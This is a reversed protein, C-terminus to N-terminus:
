TQSLNNRESFPARYLWVPKGLVTELRAQTGCHAITEQPLWELVAGDQLTISVEDAM